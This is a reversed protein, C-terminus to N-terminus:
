EQNGTDNDGGTSRAHGKESGNIAKVKSSPNTRPFSEFIIAQGRSERNKRSDGSETLAAGRGKRIYSGPIPTKAGHGKGVWASGSRM